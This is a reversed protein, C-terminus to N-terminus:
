PDTRELDAVQLVLMGLAADSLRQDAVRFGKRQFQSPSRM